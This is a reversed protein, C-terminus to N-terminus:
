YVRVANMQTAAAENQSGKQLLPHLKLGKQSKLAFISPSPRSPPNDSPDNTDWPPSALMAASSSDEADEIDTASSMRSISVNKSGSSPTM